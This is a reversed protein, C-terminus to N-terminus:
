SLRARALGLPSRCDGGCVSVKLFTDLGEVKVTRWYGSLDPVTSASGASPSAISMAHHRPTPLHSRAQANKTTHRFVAATEMFILVDKGKRQEREQEAIRTWLCVVM